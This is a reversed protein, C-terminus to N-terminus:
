SKRPAPKPNAATKASGGPPSMLPYGPDSYCCTDSCNVWVTYHGDIEQMMPYRTPTLTEPAGDAPLDEHDCTDMWSKPGSHDGKSRHTKNTCHGLPLDGITGTALDVFYSRGGSVIWTVRQEPGLPIGKAACTKSENFIEGIPHSDATSQYEAFTTAGAGKYTTFILRVYKHSCKDAAEVRIKHPNVKALPSVLSALSVLGKNDLLAAIPQPIAKLKATDAAVVRNASDGAATAAKTTDTGSKTGGCAAMAVLIVLTRM